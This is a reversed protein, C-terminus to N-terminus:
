AAKKMAAKLQHMQLQQVYFEARERQGTWVVSFGAHHVELMLKEAKEKPYGFVRQLVLTVFSMLNVPDDYVIVHWPTDLESITKTETATAEDLDPIAPMAEPRLLPTDSWKSPPALTRWSRGKVM